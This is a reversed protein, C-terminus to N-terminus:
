VYQGVYINFWNLHPMLNNIYSVIKIRNGSFSIAMWIKILGQSINSQNKTFTCINWTLETHAHFYCTCFGHSKKKLNQNLLLFFM